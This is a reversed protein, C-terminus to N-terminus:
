IQLICEVRWNTEFVVNSETRNDPLGRERTPHDSVTVGPDAASTPGLAVGVRM